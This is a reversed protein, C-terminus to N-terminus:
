NINSINENLLENKLNLEKINVLHCNKMSRDDRHSEIAYDYSHVSLLELRDFQEFTAANNRLWSHKVANYSISLSSFYKDNLYKIIRDAEIDKPNHVPIGDVYAPVANSDNVTKSICAAWLIKVSDYLPNCMDYLPTVSINKITFAM